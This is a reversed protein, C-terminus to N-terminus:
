FYNIAFLILFFVCICSAIGLLPANYSGVKFNKDFDPIGTYLDFGLFYEAIIGLKFPMLIKNWLVESIVDFTSSPLASNPMTPKSLYKSNFSFSLLVEINIFSKFNPSHLRKNSIGFEQISMEEKAARIITQVTYYTNVPLKEKIVSIDAISQETIIKGKTDILVEFSIITAENQRPM